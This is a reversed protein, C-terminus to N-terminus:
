NKRQKINDQVKQGDQSSRSNQPSRPNQTNQPNQPSQPNQDNSNEKSIFALANCLSFRFYPKENLTFNKTFSLSM